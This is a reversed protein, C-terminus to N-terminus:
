ESTKLEAATESFEAAAPKSNKESAGKATFKVGRTNTSIDAPATKIDYVAGVAALDLKGHPTTSAYVTLGESGFPPTIELDYKDDGSPLEYIVGGNFYNNERFPNPLLQVLNGRADRYVVRGYFPKNGKLYVKVKDGKKYEKKDTWVKVTLPASPDNELTEQKGKTMTNMTKEDPVVEVKLKIRYCDGLGDEKYWGKELEQIVRVQANSYASILDKELMSDQVHTESKIYTAAYESAKRKATKVATLETDKRSKDDGMCAYGDTETVVSQGAHLSHSMLVTVALSIFIRKM